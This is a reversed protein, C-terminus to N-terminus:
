VNLEDFEDRDDRNTTSGVLSGRIFRSFEPRRMEELAAKRVADQLEPNLAGNGGFEARIIRQVAQEVLSQFQTYGWIALIGIFVTILAMMVALATLVVIIVDSGSPTTDVVLTRQTAWVTVLAISAVIAGFM